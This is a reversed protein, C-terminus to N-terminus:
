SKKKRKLSFIFLCILMALICGCFDILVDREDSSRGPVFRQICEDISPILIFFFLPMYINKTPKQYSNIMNMFLVGLVFYESFHGLKRVFFSTVTIHLGIFNVVSQMVSLLTGSEHSSITSNLFSQSFIFLTWMVTVFALIIKRKKSHASARGM